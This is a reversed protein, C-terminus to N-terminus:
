SPSNIGGDLISIRGEKDALRRLVGFNLAQWKLEGDYFIRVRENGDRVDHLFRILPKLTVSNMYTLERFDMEICAENARGLELARAIAPELFEEPDKELSRGFWNLRITEQETVLELQLDDHQLTETM